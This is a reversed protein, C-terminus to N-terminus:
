FFKAARSVLHPAKPRGASCFVISKTMIGFKEHRPQVFCISKNCEISKNAIGCNKAARSFCFVSSKAKPRLDVFGKEARSFLIETSKTASGFNERLKFNRRVPYLAKTRLELLNESRPQVFHLTKPRLEFLRGLAASRFATLQTTRSPLNWFQKAARCPMIFKTQTAKTPLNWFKRQAASCFVTSKNV